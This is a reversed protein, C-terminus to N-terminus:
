HGILPPVESTLSTTVFALSSRSNLKSPLIPFDIHINHDINLRQYIGDLLVFFHPPELYSWRM